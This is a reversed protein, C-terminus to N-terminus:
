LAWQDNHPRDVLFHIHGLHSRSMPWLGRKNGGTEGAGGNTTRSTRGKHAVRARRIHQLLDAIAQKVGQEMDQGQAALHVAGCGGGRGQALIERPIGVRLFQQITDYFGM